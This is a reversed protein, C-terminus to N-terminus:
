ILLGVPGTEGKKSILDPIPEGVGGVGWTAYILPDRIRSDM